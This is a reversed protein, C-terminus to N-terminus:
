TVDNEVAHGPLAFAEAEEKHFQHVAAKLPKEGFLAFMGPRILVEVLLSALLGGFTTVALPYLIEKGPQDPNWLLPLLALHRDTVPEYCGQFLKGLRSIMGYYCPNKLMRQISSTSLVNGKHSRLGHSKIERAIGNHM